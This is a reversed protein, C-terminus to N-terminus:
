TLIRNNFSFIEAKHIENFNISNNFIQILLLIGVTVLGLFIFLILNNFIEQTEKKSNLLGVFIFINLYSLFYLNLSNNLNTFISFIFITILIIFLSCNISM